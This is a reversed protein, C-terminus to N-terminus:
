GMDTKVLVTGKVFSISFRMLEVGNSGCNFAHDYYVHVLFSCTDSQEDYWCRICLGAKKFMQRLLPTATLQRTTDEDEEICVYVEGNRRESTTIFPKGDIGLNERLINSITGMNVNLKEILNNATEKNM